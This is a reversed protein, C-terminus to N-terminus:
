PYHSESLWAASATANLSIRNSHRCITGCHKDTVDTAAVVAPLEIAKTSELANHDELFKCIVGENIKFRVWRYRAIHAALAIVSVLGVILYELNM